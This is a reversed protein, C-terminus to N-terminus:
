EGEQEWIRRILRLKREITGVARKLKEAIEANGFGELKWVAVRRLTDDDLQMLLQACAEAMAAAEAPDPEGSAFPVGPLPEVRGGGPEEILEARVLKGAKRATVVLLVQWLDDRDDLRPFRNAEVARVFSDFASSAVDESSSALRARALHVLRAFYIEWLQRTAEDRQGEKLRALWVTLSNAQGM